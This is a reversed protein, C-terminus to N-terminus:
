FSGFYYEIVVNLAVDVYVYLVVDCIIVNKIIVEFVEKDVKDVNIGINFFVYWLDWVGVIKGVVYM